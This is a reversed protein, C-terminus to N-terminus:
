GEFWQNQHPSQFFDYHEQYPPRVEFQVTSSYGQSYEPINEPPPHHTFTKDSFDFFPSSATDDLLTSQDQGPKIRRRNDRNKKRSIVANSNNRDEDVAYKCFFGNGGYSYDQEHLNNNHPPGSSADSVMSLDEDEEEEDDEEKLRKAEETINRRRRRRGADIASDHEQYNNNINCSLYPSSSSHQLYLTWGSECGSSCERDVDNGFMNYDM